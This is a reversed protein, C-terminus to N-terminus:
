EKYKKLANEIDIRTSMNLPFLGYPNIHGHLLPTIARKDTSTLKEKWKPTSLVEQILLTNMYVLSAQLLHLCLVALEQDQKKNTSIEGLKGYFIFDM